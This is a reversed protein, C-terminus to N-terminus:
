FVRSRDNLYDELKASEDITIIAIRHKQVNQSFATSITSLSKVVEDRQSTLAQYKSADKGKPDKLAATKEIIAALETYTDHFSSAMAKYDVDPISKLKGLETACARIAKVSAESETVNAMSQNCNNLVPRVALMSTLLNDNYDIYAQLKANFADYLSKGEGESLVAKQGLAKNETELSVIMARATEINKQFAEDTAKGANLNAGATNLAANARGVNQYQALADRYPQRAPAVLISYILLAGIIIAGIIAVIVLM